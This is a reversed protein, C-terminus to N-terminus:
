RGEHRELGELCGSFSAARHPGEEAMEFSYADAIAHLDTPDSVGFEKAVKRPGADECNMTAAERTNQVLEAQSPSDDRNGREDSDGGCGVLLLVILPPLLAQKM